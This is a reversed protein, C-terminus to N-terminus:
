RGERSNLLHYLLGSWGLTVGEAKAAMYLREWLQNLLSQLLQPSAFRDGIQALIKVWGHPSEEALREFAQDSDPEGALRQELLELVEHGRWRTNTRAMDVALRVCGAWGASEALLRFAWGATEPVQGAIMLDPATLASPGIQAILHGKSPDKRIRQM